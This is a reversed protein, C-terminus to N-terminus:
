RDTAVLERRERSVKATPRWGAILDRLLWWVIRPEAKAKSLAYPLYAKGYPVYVFVGLRLEDALLLSPRMPLGHLLELQCSTEAARLRQSAETALAPDHTAVAVHRARGALRDIVRLYGDVLDIEPHDPDPWQGKVVRVTVGREVAWDADDMSRAWRGPLSCSLTAGRDLFRDMLQRTRDAVEPGLSDIHIRVRHRAARDAIECMLDDSFKIAPLKISLYGHEYTSLVMIQALYEDTVRRPGDTPGDWYGLTIGMGARNWQDAVRVADELTDGAVYAKAARRTVPRVCRAICERTASLWNV